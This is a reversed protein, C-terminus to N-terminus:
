AKDAKFREILNKCAQPAFSSAWEESQQIEPKLGALAESSWHPQHEKLPLHDTESRIVVFVDIDPDRDGLGRLMERTALVRAAGELFSLDGDLMAQAVAVLRQRALVEEDNM